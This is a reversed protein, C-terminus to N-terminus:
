KEEKVDTFIKETEESIEKVKEEEIKVEQINKEEEM